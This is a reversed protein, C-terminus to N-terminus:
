FPILEVSDLDEEPQPLSVRKVGYLEALLKEIAPIHAPSLCLTFGRGNQGELYGALHLLVRQQKPIATVLPKDTDQLQFNIDTWSQM